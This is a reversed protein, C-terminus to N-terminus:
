RGQNITSPLPGEWDAPQNWPTSSLNDSSDTTACGALLGSTLAFLLACLFPRLLKM